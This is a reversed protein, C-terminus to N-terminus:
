WFPKDDPPNRLEEPLHYLQIADFAEGDWSLENVAVNDIKIGHIDAVSMGRVLSALLVRILMGHSVVVVAQGAHDEAIQRLAPLGRQQMQRFSEGSPHTFDLDGGAWAQMAGIYIHRFEERSAGALEGMSREHLDQIQNLKLNKQRAMPSATDVARRMASSYIADVKVDAFAGALRRSQEHGWESLGIDSESGHFKTVDATQAHRLLYIKTM